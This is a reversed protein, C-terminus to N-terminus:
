RACSGRPFGMVEIFEASYAIPVVPDPGDNQALPEQMGLAVRRVRLSVKLGM